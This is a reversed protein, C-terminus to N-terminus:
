CSRETQFIQVLDLTPGNQGFKGGKHLELHHVTRHTHFTLINKTNQQPTKCKNRLNVRLCTIM